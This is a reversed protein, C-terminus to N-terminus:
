PCEVVPSGPAIMARPVAHRAGPIPLVARSHPPRSRGRVGPMEVVVTGLDTELQASIIPRDPTKESLRDM